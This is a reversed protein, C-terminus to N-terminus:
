AGRAWATLGAGTWEAKAAVRLNGAQVAASYAKRVADQDLTDDRADVAGALLVPRPALKAALEPLDTCDLFRPAFNSLPHRYNETGVISAFSVLGGALYLAQINPDLVAACLAPVTLRRSAALKVTRGQLAPHNRLAASVALIDTVRQGVLPKGLMLSAWAYNEEDQHWRAYESAGPSFEPTLAGVGRVDAACIIPSKAPLVRDVEPEFWLAERGAADLCLLVHTESDRDEPLLLWAPVWVGAASPVDLAEVQVNRSLAHGVVTARTIRAPPDLGLVNEFGPSDHGAQQKLLSFPTESHLSRVTSGTDTAWLAEDPEPKAPPEATVPKPEAKLWRGFWNYIQMRCEYGLAHPLATDAWAIQRTRGLLAYVSRLRNFEHWGNSVYEPSYTANSDQDSVAVLLPKPAFPYLSDWRDFGANGSGIFNQEADDTSGPPHFPSCAFNETNGMCVAASALRDDAAALLMTLTGGGSHGASALRKPDALPHSALYDLGRMADWVQLRTATDGYLLMQRGPVTHEDDSSRLRSHRGSSDAYYFREGQGMPDFALVLYGLQVLGQCFRQYSEYAKGNRYHGSQFLVGPLPAQARNPIYLNATVPFNPRSEYIVKEVRYAPRELAGATRANLPTREPLGGILRWFTERAWRQRAAVADKTVLRSLETERKRYATEALSRLYDPLCRSYNRYRAGPFFAPAQDSSHCYAVAQMAPLSLLQRRNMAM